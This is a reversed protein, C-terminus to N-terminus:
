LKATQIAVTGTATSGGYILVWLDQSCTEIPLPLKLSQCLAMGVTAIAIGFSAAEEFRMGEPIIYQLGERALVYEAFAGDEPHATNAGHVFGAVRDVRKLISEAGVEEVVGAYDCGLTCGSCEIGYLHKFDTPNLAVAKVQILCFNSRLQPINVEEATLEGDQTVKLAKM